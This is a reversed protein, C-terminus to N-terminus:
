KIKFFYLVKAAHFTLFPSRTKLNSFSLDLIGSVIFYISTNTDGQKFLYEDPNVLRYKLKQTLKVITKKSLKTFIKSYDQLFMFKSNNFIEKRLPKNLSNIFDFGKTLDEKLFDDELEKLYSRLNIECNYPMASLKLFKDFEKLNEGKKQNSDVFSVFNLYGNFFLLLWLLLMFFYSIKKNLDETETIDILFLRFTKLLISFYYQSIEESTNLYPYNKKNDSYIDSINCICTLLHLLIYFKFIKVLFDILYGLVENHKLILTWLEITEYMTRYYFLLLLNSFITYKNNEITFFMLVGLFGLLKKYFVIYKPKFIEKKNKLGSNIIIEIILIITLILKALVTYSKRMNCDLSIELSFEFFLYFVIFFRCFEFFLKVPSIESFTYNILAQVIRSFPSIIM